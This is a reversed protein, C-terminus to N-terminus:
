LTNTQLAKLIEKGIIEGLMPPVANGLQVNTTKGVFEYNDPFTQIRAAERFTLTRDQTPHIFTGASICSFNRTITSCPKSAELRGYTNPFVVKTPDKARDPWLEKPLDKIRQGEKITEILKQMKPTHGMARHRTLGNSGQRLKAQFDNQPDSAYEHKEEKMRVVPLDSTADKFSLYPILNPGHTKKPLFAQPMDKRSGILIFRKRTQPIGYDPAYLVDCDVNYGLSDMEKLLIQYVKGDYMGKFGWVNEFLAYKPNLESIARLYEYFLSNRPDMENKRGVTSFGQCPPGGSVLDVENLGLEEKEKKFDVDHVDKVLVKIKPHNKKLTAAYEEVFEVALPIDFGANELGLSLGGAGAFLEIAIPRM